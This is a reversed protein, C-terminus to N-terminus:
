WVRSAAAVQHRRGATARNCRRHEPGAYKSRDADDHGLDWPDGPAILLGCRACVVHGAAVRPAWAARARRHEAGYGAATTSLAPRGPRNGRRRRAADGCEVCYWHRTSLTPRTSCSKCLKPPRQAALADREAKMRHGRVDQYYERARELDRDRWQSDAYRARDRARLQCTQSCFRKGPARAPVGFPAGCEECPRAVSIM